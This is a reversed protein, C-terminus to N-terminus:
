AVRNRLEGNQFAAINLAMEQIVRQRAERTAWAIHPTVILNPIGPELLPNGHVPPEESLVDVAAGALRGAKLVSALAREDVVGGRACNILLAEPKMLTLEKPGILDRTEPLLPVHISLVDVLPLLEDLPVRGQRKDDKNRAAVLVSMGFAEAVRGVAKGTNGYGVIGFRKGALERIPHDLLTFQPSRKWAGQQMLAEYEKLHQNLSLLLAFVHQAMGMTSYAPVNCVGIGKEWAAALDINNVGTAAACILRVSPFRKIAEAPLKVKNLILVEADAVNETLKDAATVGFVRLISLVKELARLKVDGQFSVTDYDLFVGKM